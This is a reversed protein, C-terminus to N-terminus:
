STSSLMCFMRSEHMSSCQFELEVEIHEMFHFHLQLNQPIHQMEIGNAEISISVQYDTINQGYLLKRTFVTFMNCYM